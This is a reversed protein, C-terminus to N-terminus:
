KDYRLIRAGRDALARKPPRIKNSKVTLERDTVFWYGYDCFPASFFGGGQNHASAATKAIAHGRNV